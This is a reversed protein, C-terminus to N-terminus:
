KEEEPARNEHEPTRNKKDLHEIQDDAAMALVRVVSDEKSVARHPWTLQEVLIM